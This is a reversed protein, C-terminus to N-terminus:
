WDPGRRRPRPSPRCRAAGGPLRPRPMAGARPPALAAVAVPWGAQELLRAAVYGDGGNNGPGALVLTRCPRFRRQVARAVARGAAEM